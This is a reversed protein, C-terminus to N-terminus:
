TERARGRERVRVLALHGRADGSPKRGNAPHEGRDGPRLGGGWGVGSGRDPAPPTAAASSDADSKVMISSLAEVGGM